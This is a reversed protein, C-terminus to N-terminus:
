LSLDRLYDLKRVIFEYTFITVASAPVTRLLNTTIGKYFGHIGEEYMIVKVAHIIGKYKFPKVIQNQLRTRIV